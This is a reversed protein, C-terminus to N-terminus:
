KNYMTKYLEKTTLLRKSKKSKNDKNNKSKLNGTIKNAKYKDQKM